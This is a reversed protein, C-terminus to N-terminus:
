LKEFMEMARKDAHEYVKQGPKLLDELKAEDKSSLVLEETGTKKAWSPGDQDFDDWGFVGEFIEKSQERRENVTVVDFQHVYNMSRNFASPIDSLEELLSYGGLFLLLINKRKLYCQSKFDDQLYEAFTANKAAEHKYGYKVEKFWSEELSRPQRVQVFTIFRGSFVTDLEEPSLHGMPHEYHIWTVGSDLCEQSLSECKSNKWRMTETIEGNREALRNLYTGGSKSIHLFFIPKRLGTDPDLFQPLTRTNRKASLLTTSSSSEAASSSLSSYEYYTSFALKYSTIIVFTSCLIYCFNM